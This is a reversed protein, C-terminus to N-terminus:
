RHPAANAQKIDYLACGIGMTVLSFIQYGPQTMGGAVLALAEDTVDTAQVAELHAELQAASVDIGSAQAAQTLCAVAQGADGTRSLRAQLAPDNLVLAQLREQVQLPLSM